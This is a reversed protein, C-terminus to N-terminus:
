RPQVPAIRRLEDFVNLVINFHDWKTAPPTTGVGALALRGDRNLAFSRVNLGSKLQAGPWARPQGAHFSAGEVSYDVIMIQQDPAAYILEHQNPSWAPAQGGSTSITILPEKGPYPRVYVNYQGSQNSEYALWRGDPSFAPARQDFADDLFAAPKGPKWGEGEDREMRLLMVTSHAGQTSHESFALVNEHPHWSGPVQVNPSNTLRTFHGSGDTPLWYLNQVREKPDRQSSVVIGRGDSAWVPSGSGSDFHTLPQLVDRRWDDIWVNGSVALALRQGDPSFTPASWESPTSRLMTRQGSRDLWEIPSAVNAGYHLAYVLAGSDSAAWMASGAITLSILLGDVVPRAPGTLELRERDFPAAYLVNNSVYLLHGSLTYRGFYAGSLVVKRAGTPLAQVVLDSQNFDKIVAAGLSTYLVARGGPLIQPWRHTAEGAELTTVPQPTGGTSPVRWLGTEKQDPSFVINGDEGWDGGRGNPADCLTVAAGGTVAIKKLKGAAFFAIWKGDPSFFPGEAGDTGPLQAADLRDLNRVYLRPIQESPDDAFFAVRAGDRSIALTARPGPELPGGVGLDARLHMTRAVPATRWPSGFILVVALATACAAAAVWPLASRWGRFAVPNPRPGAISGSSSSADEIDLRADAIDALRRNLPKELCRRVLRLIPAPTSSPLLTWDPDSGIVRSLVDSIETGPFARRGTLMEFLVCGFSWIDARKDVTKGLAQEPAMYASTGLVVGPQTAGASMTPSELASAGAPLRVDLARALGFDLVKVTGDERVKINAPKLDRHIIGREHAAELADAIQRAIPLVEALPMPRYLRDALTPGDVLEMVLAAVGTSEEFGHIHAINPHNLAALLQAERRFRAQREADDAVSDPLVKIAVSRNLASDRAKYVEGMGGKGILQDIVYPGLRAGPELAARTVIGTLPAPSALLELVERRLVPDSCHEVVFREREAAPLAAADALLSKARDWASPNM